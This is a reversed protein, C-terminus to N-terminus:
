NRIGQKKREQGTMWQRETTRLPSIDRGPGRACNNSGPPTKHDCYAMPCQTRSLYRIIYLGYHEPQFGRTETILLLHWWFYCMAIRLYSRQDSSVNNKKKRKWTSSLIHIPPRLKVLWRLGYPCLDCKLPQPFPSLLVRPSQCNSGEKIDM